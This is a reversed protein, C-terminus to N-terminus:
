DLDITKDANLLFKEKTKGNVKVEYSFDKVGPQKQILLNNESISTKPTTYEFTLTKTTAPKLQMFGDFVTKGFESLTAAKQESGSSATLKSGDPVYVRMYDRNTGNLWSNYPKPNNYTITLKHKLVTSDKTDIELLVTDTMYLNSKGGALNADNIHLYDGKNSKIQGVWDLDNLAQQETDDHLYFVLHKGNALNVGTTVYEPMKSFPVKLLQSLIAEMLEGLIDKRDQASRQLLQTQRELEYVVNVCDCRPDNDASFKQKNIVIPGTMKLLETLVKTDILIIGDYQTAGPIVKYMREFLALSTPIDPSFNSDRMDLRSQLTGDQNPLYRILPDARTFSCSSRSQCTRLFKDDLQYIDDSALKSVRGQDVKLLAYATMFGGTPRLENDNQFLLLYTQPTKAGLATPTIELAPRATTVAVYAGNILNKALELQSRVEHDGFKEPYKATKINKIEENAQKLQPVITDLNPVTKDLIKVLQSIKDNNPTPGGGFGLENKYPDLSNIITDAASLELNAAKAFHQGDSYYGGIVPIIKLWILYGLSKNLDASSKKIKAINNKIGEFDEQKAADALSKGSTNIEKLSQFAFRLPFYTAVSLIILIVLFIGLGILIKKRKTGPKKVQRAAINKNLNTLKM